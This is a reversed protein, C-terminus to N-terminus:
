EKIEEKEETKNNKREPLKINVNSFLKSLAICAEDIGIILGSMVTQVIAYGLYMLLPWFYGVASAINMVIGLSTTEATRFYMYDAKIIYDLVVVGATLGVFGLFTWGFNKFSIKTYRCCLMLMPALLLMSHYLTTHMGYFSLLSHDVTVSPVMYNMFAGFLGITCVYTCGIDKLKGKGWIAFPMAYMFISCIYLPLSGTLVFTKTALSLTIKAIDLCVALAWCGILSYKVLNQNGKKRLAWILAISLIAFVIYYIKYDIVDVYPGVRGLLDNTKFFEM